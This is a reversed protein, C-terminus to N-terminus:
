ADNMKEHNMPGYIEKRKAQLKKNMRKEKLKRKKEM